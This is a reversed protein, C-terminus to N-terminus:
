PMSRRSASAPTATFAGSAKDHCNQAGLALPLDSALLSHIATLHIFSPLLIIQLESTQQRRLWNILTSTLEQGESLTKHMKWNAAILIPKMRYANFHNNIQYGIVVFSCCYGCVAM